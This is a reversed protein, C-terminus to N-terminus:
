KFAAGPAAGLLVDTVIQRSDSSTLGLDMNLSRAFGEAETWTSFIGLEPVATTEGNGEIAMSIAYADGRRSGVFAFRESM